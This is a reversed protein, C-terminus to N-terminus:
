RAPAACAAPYLVPLGLPEDDDDDDDDEDDDDDDDVGDTVIVPADGPEV